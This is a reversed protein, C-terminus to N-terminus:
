APQPIIFAQKQFGAPHNMSKKEPLRKIHHKEVSVPGLTVANVGHQRVAHSARRLGAHHNLQWRTITPLM